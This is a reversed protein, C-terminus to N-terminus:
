LFYFYIFVAGEDNYDLLQIMLMIIYKIKGSPTALYGDM